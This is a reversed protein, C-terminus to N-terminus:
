MSLSSIKTDVDMNIFILFGIIVSVIRFEFHSDNFGAFIVNEAMNQSEPYTYLRTYIIYGLTFLCYLVDTINWRDCSKWRIGALKIVHNTSHRRHRSGNNMLGNNTSCPLNNLNLKVLLVIM